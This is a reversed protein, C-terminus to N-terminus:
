SSYKKVKEQVDRFTIDIVYVDEFLAKAKEDDGIMEYALALNYKIGLASRDDGEVAELGKTLQKVALGPQGQSLLCRGVMELSQAKYTPSEAAYQFERIADGFLNMEVYAMGLDYRSRYDGEDIDAKVESALTSALDEGEAGGKEGAGGGDAGLLGDIDGGPRGAPPSNPIVYEKPGGTAADADPVTRAPEAKKPAGVEIVGFDTAADSDHGRRIHSPLSGNFPILEDTRRSERHSEVTKLKAPESAPEEVEAPAIGISAMKGRTREDEAAMGRSRYLVSLRQLVDGAETNPGDMLLYEAARELVEPTADFSQVIELVLARSDENSTETEVLVRDFFTLAYEVAEREFGQRKRLTAMNGYVVVDGPNLRLIKKCVAVANNHLGIKAYADIAEHYRKFAERKNGLKLQIDGIENFVNPNHQEVEVLRSFEELAKDWQRKKAYDLAKKRINNPKSV